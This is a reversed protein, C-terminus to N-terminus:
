NPVLIEKDTPALAHDVNNKIKSVYWRIRVIFFRNNNSMQTKHDCYLISRLGNTRSITCAKTQDADGIEHARMLASHCRTIKLNHLTM